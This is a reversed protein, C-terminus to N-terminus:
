PCAQSFALSAVSNRTGSSLRIQHVGKGKLLITADYMLENPQPKVPIQIPIGYIEMDGPGLSDKLQGAKVFQWFTLNEDPDFARVTLRDGEARYNRRITLRVDVPQDGVVVYLTAAPQIALPGVTMQETAAECAPSLLMNVGGIILGLLLGTSMLKM